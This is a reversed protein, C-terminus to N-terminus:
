KHEKDKLEMITYESVDASINQSLPKNVFNQRSKSIYTSCKELLGEHVIILKSEDEDTANINLSPTTMETYGGNNYWNLNNSIMTCKILNRALHFYSDTPEHNPRKKEYPLKEFKEFENIIMSLDKNSVNGIAYREKKYQQPRVKAKFGLSTIM